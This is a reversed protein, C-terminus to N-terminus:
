PAEETHGLHRLVVELPDEGAQARARIEARTPLRGTREAMRARRRRLQPIDGKRALEVFARHLIRAGRNAARRAKPQERDDLDTEVGLQAAMMEDEVAEQDARAIATRWIQMAKVFSADALALLRGIQWAAAHSFDFLGTDPDYRIARDSVPYTTDLPDARNPWPTLPGRYWATAQEGELLEAPMPVFGLDLAQAAAQQEGTDSAAETSLMRLARDEDNDKISQLLGLFDGPFASSTFSWKALAALNIKSGTVASGALHDTHGEVSVLYVTTDRSETVASDPLRNAIVLSWFGEALGTVKNSTDVERAHTLHALDTLRPAVSLFFTLDVQLLQVTEGLDDSGLDPLAPVVVDGGGDDILDAVTTATPGAIFDSESEYVVLLALWPTADQPDDVTIPRAWPLDRSLVVHPLTEAFTGEHNGPPYVSQVNRPQISFRPATVVLSQTAVYDPPPDAEAGLDIHQTVTLTYESAPLPARSADYFTITGTSLAGTELADNSM